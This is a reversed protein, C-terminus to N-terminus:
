FQLDMILRGGVDEFAITPVWDRTAAPYSLHDPATRIYKYRQRARRRTRSSGSRM